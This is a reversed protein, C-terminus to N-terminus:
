GTEEVEDGTWLLTKGKAVFCISGGLKALVRDEFRETLDNGEEKAASKPKPRDPLQYNGKLFSTMEM